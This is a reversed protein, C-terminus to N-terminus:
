CGLPFRTRVIILIRYAMATNKVIVSEKVLEGSDLYVRRGLGRGLPWYLKERTIPRRLSSPQKSLILFYHEPWHVYSRLLNDHFWISTTPSGEEMLFPVGRSMPLYHRTWNMKYQCCLRTPFNLTSLESNNGATVYLSGNRKVCTCTMQPCWCCVQVHNLWMFDLKSASHHASPPRPYIQDLYLACSIVRHDFSPEAHSQTPASFLFTKNTQHRFYWHSSSPM